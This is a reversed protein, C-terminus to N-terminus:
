SRPLRHPNDHCGLSFGDTQIVVAGPFRGPPCHRCQLSLFAELRTGFDNLHEGSEEATDGDFDDIRVFRDRAGMEPIVDFKGRGALMVGAVEDHLDMTVLSLPECILDTLPGEIGHFSETNRPAQDAGPLVARVAELSIRQNRIGSELLDDRTLIQNVDIEDRRVRPTSISARKM